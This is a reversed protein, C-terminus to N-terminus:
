WAASLIQASWPIATYHGDHLLGARTRTNTYLGDDRFRIVLITSGGPSTWAAQVSGTLPDPVQVGLDAQLAGTRASYRLLTPPPQPGPCHGGGPRPPSCRVYPIEAADIIISRGDPTMQWSRWLAGSPVAGKLVGPSARLTVPQSDALLSDGSADVDLLRFQDRGAVTIRAFGLQRGDATWSIGNMVISYAGPTTNICADPCGQNTWVRRAGTVLNYVSIHGITYGGATLTSVVALSTGDPSVAMAAVSANNGPLVAPLPTLRTREAARGATPAIRLLYFRTAPDRTQPWSAAALVFTRDDAAGTVGVINIFPRPAQIRAIVTGTQTSRVVAIQKASGPASWTIAVYYPPIRQSAASAAPAQSPTSPASAVTGAAVAAVAAAAGLGALLKRRGPGSWASRRAEPHTVQRPSDLELPPAVPPIQGAKEQFGTRLAEELQQTM